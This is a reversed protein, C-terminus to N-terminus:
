IERRWASVTCTLQPDDIMQLTKKVQAGDRM